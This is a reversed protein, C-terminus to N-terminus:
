CCREAHVDAHADPLIVGEDIDDANIEDVEPGTESNTSRGDSSPDNVEFLAQKVRRWMSDPLDIFNIVEDYSRPHGFDLLWSFMEYREGWQAVKSKFQARRFSYKIFNHCMGDEHITEIAIYETPLIEVQFAYM